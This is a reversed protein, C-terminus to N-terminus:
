RISPPPACAARRPPSVGGPRRRAPPWCRRCCCPSRWRCHSWFRSPPSAAGLVVAIALVVAAASVAPVLVGLYLRDLADIDSVLRGLLDGSRRFGLGSPLREALRRFFWVRTDALARFAAAHAVLRDLYRAVPRAVAFVRMWVLAAAGGAFIAAGTLEEAVGRGAFGLLALGFLSALASVAIGAALWGGRSRWAM